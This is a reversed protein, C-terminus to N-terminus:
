FLVSESLSLSIGSLLAKYQNRSDLPRPRESTGKSDSPSSLSRLVRSQKTRPPSSSTTSLGVRKIGEDRSKLAQRQQQTVCPRAVAAARKDTIAMVKQPSAIRGLSVGRIREGGVATRSSLTRLHPMVRPRAPPDQVPRHARRRSSLSACRGCVVGRVRGRRRQASEHSPRGRRAARPRPRTAHTFANAIPSAAAGGLRTLCSDTAAGCACWPKTDRRQMGHPTGCRSKGAATNCPTCHRAPFSPSPPDFSASAHSGRM